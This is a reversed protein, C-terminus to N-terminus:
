LLPRLSEATARLAPLMRTTIEESTWAVTPFSSGMAAHCRGRIDKLLVAVGTLGSNLQQDLKCFGNQRVSAVEKAFEGMTTVTRATFSVFEHENLWLSAAQDTLSSVLAVGPAVVHAPARDGPQFGISVLRPSSSRAIYTVEHGDLVSVNVTEGIIESLRQIFPQVQRHLRSASLYSRGLRLVRPALWYLKGDTQMYGLHCLTLLHRRVASRPLDTCAAAQAITMRPLADDFAEILRLGRGLGAILDQSAIPFSGASPIYSFQKNM